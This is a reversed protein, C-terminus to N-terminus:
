YGGTGRRAVQSFGNVVASSVATALVAGQAAYGAAASASTPNQAENIAALTANLLALDATFQAVQANAADFQAGYAAQGASTSVDATLAARQAIGANFDAVGTPDALLARIQQNTAGDAFIAAIAEPSLGAATMEDILADREALGANDSAFAGRWGAQGSAWANGGDGFLDSKFPSTADNGIAAMQAALDDRISEWSSKQAEAADIWEFTAKEQGSLWDDRRQEEREARFEAEEAAKQEREERREEREERRREREELYSDDREVGFRRRRKREDDDGVLGGGAFGPLTGYRASLMGWDRKVLEQPIVVEGRHVIGAPEYKGGKGTFGGDYFPGFGPSGGPVRQTQIYTIATKGNLANLQSNVGLIAALANSSDVDVEAEANKEGWNLIWDDAEKSKKRRSVDMMDIVAAENRSGWRNIWDDAERRKQRARGDNLDITPAAKKLGLREIDNALVGVSDRQQELLRTTGEVLAGTRELGKLGVGYEVRLQKRLELQRELPANLLAESLGTDNELLGFPGKGTPTDLLESLKVRADEVQHTWAQGWREAFEEAKEYQKESAEEWGLADVLIEAGILAALASGGGLRGRRRGGRGTAGAAGGAAAGGGMLALSGAVGPALRNIARMAALGALLETSFGSDAIASVAKAMTEIAKLAPGGLPAAAEAIDLMARAVASVTEAVRPGNERVYGVFDKFGETKKLGTAWEDFGETADVIWDLADGNLPIFAELIESLGHVVNGLADAMGDLAGPSRREVMTFFDDWRKSTLSNAADSAIDGLEANVARIIREFEPGREVITDLADVLGPFLAEAGADTLQTRLGGLADLQLVMERAAPSIRKMAAEADMLNDKTPELQAKNLADLAEGVGQFALVASGAAVVAVGLGASLATVAPVALAGIPLAAPGLTLLLDALIGIRGSMRDISRGAGDAERGMKQVDRVFVTSSRSLDVSSQGSLSNLEKNLLATASAAKLMGGSLNDDLDLIVRERRTAM